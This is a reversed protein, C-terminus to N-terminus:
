ESNKKYIHHFKESINLQDYRGLISQSIKQRDYTTNYVKLLANMWEQHTNAICGNIESVVEEAIGVPSVVIPLGCQLAEAIVVSFTEFVSGHVFCHSKNFYSVLDQGSLVGPFEIQFSYNQNKIEQLQKGVGVLIVKFNKIKGQRYLEELATLFFSPRKHQDWNAVAIYTYLKEKVANENINFESSNIVNPVIEIPSTTYKILTQKLRESVVTICAAHNYAKKGFYGWLNIKFFKEIKTWHETIILSTKFRKSLWYGIIGAPFIVNAHLHTFTRHAFHFKYYRKIFHYHFPLMLYLLKYFISGIKIFHTEIGEESHYSGSEIYILKTVKCIDVHLVVINSKINIAEAHRKVFVGASKNRNTPYWYSLFLVQPKDM